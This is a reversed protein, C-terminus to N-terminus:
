GIAAILDPLERLQTITYPSTAHNFNGAPDLHVATIGAATAPLIDNEMSDGVVICNQASIGAIDLFRGFLGNRKSIGERNSTILLDILADMELAAVARTQADHPGESVVAISYQRRRLDRLLELAGSAPALERRICQEYMNACATATPSHLGFTELLIHMRELRYEHSSRGDTFATVFINFIRRYTDTLRDVTHGPNETAIYEMCQKVAATSASSFDHLTDDFDFVIWAHRNM